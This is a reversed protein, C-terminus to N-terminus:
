RKTNEKWHKEEYVKAINEGIKFSVTQSQM